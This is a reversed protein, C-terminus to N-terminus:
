LGLASRLRGDVAVLDELTLAGVRYIIRAPDLAFLIPKLASPYRLGAAQWDQLVYDM